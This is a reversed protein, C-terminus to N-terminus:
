KGVNGLGFVVRSKKNISTKFDQRKQKGNIKTM